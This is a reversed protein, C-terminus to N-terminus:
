FDYINNEFIELSKTAIFLSDGKLLTADVYFVAVKKRKNIM